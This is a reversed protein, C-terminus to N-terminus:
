NDVIINEFSNNGRKTSGDGWLPHIRYNLRSGGSPGLDNGYLRGYIDNANPGIRFDRSALDTQYLGYGKGALGTFFKLVTRLQEKNLYLKDERVFKRLPIGSTQIGHDTGLGANDRQTSDELSISDILLYKGPNTPPLFFIEVYYNTDDRNV